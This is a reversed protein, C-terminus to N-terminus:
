VLLCIEVQKWNISIPQESFENTILKRKTPIFIAGIVMILLTVCRSFINDPVINTTLGSTSSVALNYFVDFLTIYYFKQYIYLVAHVYITVTILTSIISWLLALSKQTIDNIKLYRIKGESIVNHISYHLRYFRLPYLWIWPGSILKFSVQM